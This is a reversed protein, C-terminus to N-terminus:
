FCTLMSSFEVPVCCVRELKSSWTDGNVAAAQIGLEKFRRVQDAQLIKLPSVILAKRKKDKLLPLMFPITKGEGTGAGVVVDLELCIAEAVDLQWDRAPAGFREEFTRAMLAREGTSDYGDKGKEERAAELNKYSLEKSRKHTNDTIPTNSSM